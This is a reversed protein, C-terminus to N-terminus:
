LLVCSICRHNHLNPLSTALDFRDLSYWGNLICKLLSAARCVTVVLGLWGNFLTSFPALVGIVYTRYSLLACCGSCTIQLWPDEFLRLIQVQREYRIPGVGGILVWCSSSPPSM